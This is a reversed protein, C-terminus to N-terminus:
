IFVNFIAGVRSVYERWIKFGYYATIVYGAIRAYVVKDGHGTKELITEVLMTGAAIGVINLLPTFDM